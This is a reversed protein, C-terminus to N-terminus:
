KCGKTKARHEDAAKLYEDRRPNRPSVPLQHNATKELGGLQEFRRQELGRATAKDGYGAFVIEPRAEFREFIGSYRYELVETGDRAGPMSAYGIYPKGTVKDLGVYTIHTADAPNKALGGVDRWWLPDHVYAYQPLGGRLGIPDESVYRGAEPDYYRFRNYYLGTEADEYQGPYRWPNTTADGEEIEAREARPVGYVDLQAKWALKGAETMLMIPTGLHDTVVAYRKRGEFKAVPSFAGPEFIWTVLLTREGDPTIGREHVLDDGDWVFLTTTGDLEKRVRRGFADYAFTVRKGDPRVVEVLRGSPSWIYKWSTGDALTKEILNGHGDYRYAPGDARELAGGQRYARDSRDASRYLNSVADSTRHQATGDPFLAAILHGRPDYDFQTTGRKPDIMAGIHEPSRWRYDVRGVERADRNPFAGTLVQRSTPRGFTDRKWIAVVGGRMRRSLELGLPDRAIKMEWEPLMFLPLGLARIEPVLLRRSPGATLGTLAGADDWTYETRHGLDTDREIRHGSLDYRSEVVHSIGDIDHREKVIRGLVDRELVVSVTAIPEPVRGPGLSATTTRAQVVDGRADFTFSEEEVRGLSFGVGHPAPPAQTSRKIMRSLADHELTTVHHDPGLIRSTRGARDYLYSQKKGDFGLEHKERGAKDLEFQYREGLQNEVAVLDEDSDYELRVRYGMPDVHEVLRSMGEYTMRVVRGLSDVQEVLNGDADYRMSLKEGDARELYTIRGMVDRLARSTRGNPDRTGIIQGLGDHEFTTTRNDGDTYTALDHRATWTMRSRRGMPDEIAVLHGHDDHTYITAVGLPDRVWLPKGKRGWEIVSEGGAPDIVRVLQNERNFTRHTERGLADREMVCNGREDYTWETKGGAGDTESTKQCLRDWTYRTVVGGPDQLEEVLGLENGSYQTIGGRGDEVLTFQRHPDYTIQRDYIYRPVGVPEKRLAMAAPNEGWTRVCWGEPHYWDWEFHFVLGGKHTEKVMVGGEYAYRLAHAAPDIAAALRGEDDYTYSILPQAEFDIGEIRGSPTWRVHLVRDGTDHIRRLRGHGYSLTIRANARDLIETLVFGKAGDVHRFRRRIGDWTRVDYGDDVRQITYRDEGDWDSAGLKLPPHEKPRGDALWLTLGADSEQVLEDFPHSWGPGLAGERTQRSRYNREWMIPILGPIEFDVAEAYLEGTMVDVPHGTLFCIAKSRWSGKTAGLLSHAKKSVWKTRVGQAVAASWDVAEPGGVLVPAGMPVALCVSTPLNVPYSCSMVISMERSLSAGGVLVTKSGSVLTGENKTPSDSPHPAVGPPTPFHPFGKVGTGANAAPMGNILTLGGGSGTVAGVAASFAAGLPDFIVGVFPHPLPVPGPPAPPPLTVAHIDIGIVPDGWKAGIM